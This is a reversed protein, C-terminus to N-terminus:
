EDKNPDRGACLLGLCKRAQALDLGQARLREELARSIAGDPRTLCNLLECLKEDQGGRHPDPTHDGGSWVGVTLTRERTFVEGRPTAGRARVRFRYIGPSNTTYHAMFEGDNQAALNLLTITKDPRTVEAFVQAGTTLPIGSQALTAHLVVTAGPEFSNQQVYARLTVNSYAHVVVSYPLTRQTAAASVTPPVGAATFLLETNRALVTAAAPQVRRSPQQRVPPRNLGELISFDSGDRSNPTRQSRPKGIQLLAHWVGAQDFRNLQLEVPLVLRYYAVGASEVYRMQPSSSALWPEIIRGSPTQLRFDVVRPLPTLLIVDVGADGQILQFPIQEVRGPVLQGDPDLVIDANSIGALIQLFYKQLLFRNDTGIAGTLLLFGGHNGSIAQLAAASTNQPTGLGIAYTQENIQPAVDAIYKPQNEVGDTLVVLAKVDYPDPAGNLIGRADFIGNGISTGGQPDLGNGNIIDKTNNRNTDSLGGSGLKVVQQLVQSSANFAVLGVGDGELMVDVFIGAAQQLSAHKSQGDGRDESMSGSRDLTLAAAATKRAVTNGIITITWQNATGQQQVTVQQPPLVDNVAGTRYIVWLRAPVIANAPTPGVTVSSNSAVLQPHNPAGGPAYELTVAVSPSVVEFSIALPVESVMGMPGQPVDQFNLLPTLLTISPTVCRESEINQNGQQVVFGLMHWNNVMDPGSGVSGSPDSTWSKSTGGRIVEDPRPVPWWHNGDGGARCQWFDNQWPLAMVLTIDGPSLTKLRFPESYNATNIIPRVPVGVPLDPDGQRLGGAEIGPYFAAGVCAELAARDLGDPSISAEPPPPGGWDNTYNNDKWRQMHAYQIPTLRNDPMGSDYLPPMDVSGAGPATLSGFIANRLADSTVPDPWTMIGAPIDVVWRTDRARQLIPYVDKTYSTTTPNPLLGGDVMAQFVRDYMTIVSDIHPAFKPPTVLVWAGVVPPTTGNSKLKITATVPGDSTDDYWGKSAWFFNSLGNGAPSASKGFGGLVLLHNDTDSRIEGLPVTTVPAAAFKVTGNDFVQRQNPGNVTRPGPDITIDAAPEPNVGHNPGKKNALHVTWTIDAKASTIEEVTNDDHHAFIHFRAAQRKVRCQADKFGGPPNPREGIRQPGIFFEDPSNGLRAIGIAPHIKYITAM